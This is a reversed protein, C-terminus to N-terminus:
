AGLRDLDARTDIDILIGPDDSPIAQLEGAHRALVERAGVDGELAMLEDRLAASFGVPHGRRKADDFPAAVVAGAELASKVARITAPRLSPMDGLAVIWGGAGSTAEVGASLTSGMGWQTRDSELVECGARELIARLAARGPPIVALVRPVAVVFTRAAREVLPSKGALLKDGGFRRASGGCLLIGVIEL